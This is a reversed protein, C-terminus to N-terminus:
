FQGCRGRAPDILADGRSERWLPDLYSTKLTDSADPDEVVLGLEQLRAPYLNQSGIYFADNDVSVLKAHNAFPSGNAWTKAGTVSEIGALGVDDCVLKRARAYGGGQQADVVKTLTQAVQKIPKGNSYAAGASKAGDDSLVITIPIGQGVKDGLAAFVREDFLAEVDYVCSLLDQQSLFVSSDASRILARLGTEGPNRYEYERSTNTDSVQRQFSSCASGKVPPDPIPPSKDGAHGPVDIGNGLRGLTLIPVDGSDDAPLTDAQNVCGSDINRKMFAVYRSNGRSDCAWKWLVDEFESADAAAPGDVTMSLDNVPDTVQLYDANWYNMGGIMAKRGDVDIVKSHNWSTAVPPVYQRYTSAAAAQVPLDAGVDRLLSGFWQRFASDDFQLPPTGVIVRVTPTRGADVAQQLGAVIADRFRGDPLPWLGSIDVSRRAGSIMQTIRKLIPAAGPPLGEGCTPEGWCDPTQLLWNPPLTNHRSLWWVKGQTGPNREDLAHSVADIHPTAPLDTARAPGAAVTLAALGAILAALGARAARTRTTEPGGIADMRRQDYTLM